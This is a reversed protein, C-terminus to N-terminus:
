VLTRHRLQQQDETRVDVRQSDVHLHRHCETASAAVGYGDLAASITTVYEDEQEDQVDEQEDQLPLIQM